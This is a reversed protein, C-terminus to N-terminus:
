AASGLISTLAAIEARLGENSLLLRAIKRVGHLISTHDRGGFRRGIQPLSHPTLEKCLYYAIQRPLMINATRRGSLMDALKVDYHKCVAKQIEIDVSLGSAKPESAICLLGIRHRRILRPRCRRPHQGDLHRSRAFASSGIRRRPACRAGCDDEQSQTGRRTRRDVRSVTPTSSDGRRQTPTFDTVHINM